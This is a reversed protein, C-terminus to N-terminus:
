VVEEPPQVCTIAGPQVLLVEGEWLIRAGGGLTVQGEERGLYVAHSGRTISVIRGTAPNVGPVDDISGGMEVCVLSGPIM